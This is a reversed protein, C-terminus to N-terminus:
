GIEEIQVPRSEQHSKMAALAVQLANRADAGTVAPVDNGRVVEAFHALEEIYADRFM